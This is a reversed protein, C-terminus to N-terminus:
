NENALGIGRPRRSAYIGPLAKVKKKSPVNDLQEGCDCRKSGFVGGTFMWLFVYLLVDSLERYMVRVCYSFPEKRDLSSKLYM